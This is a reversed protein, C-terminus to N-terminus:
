IRVGTSIMEGWEVFDRSLYNTSLKFCLYYLSVSVHIVPGKIGMNGWIQVKPGWKGWTLYKTMKQNMTVVGYLDSFVKSTINKYRVLTNLFFDKSGENVKIVIWKLFITGFCYLELTMKM